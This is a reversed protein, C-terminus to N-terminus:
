FDNHYFNLHLYNDVNVHVDLNGVSKSSFALFSRFDNFDDSVICSANVDFAIGTYIMNSTLFVSLFYLFAFYFLFRLFSITLRLTRMILFTSFCLSCPLIKKLLLFPLHVSYYVSFIANSLFHFISILSKGECLIELILLRMTVIAVVVCIRYFLAVGVNKM